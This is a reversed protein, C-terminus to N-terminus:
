LKIAVVLHIMCMVRQYATEMRYRMYHSSSINTIQPEAYRVVCYLQTHKSQGTQEGSCNQYDALCLVPFAAHWVTHEYILGTM